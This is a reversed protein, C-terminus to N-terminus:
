GKFWNNTDFMSDVSSISIKMLTSPSILQFSSTGYIWRPTSIIDLLMRTYAHVKYMHVHQLFTNSTLSVSWFSMNGCVCTHRLSLRTERRAHEWTQMYVDACTRGRRRARTQKRLHTTLFLATLRSSQRWGRYCVCACVYICVGEGIFQCTLATLQKPFLPAMWAFRM